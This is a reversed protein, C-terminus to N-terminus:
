RWDRDDCPDRPAGQVPTPGSRDFGLDSDAKLRPNTAANKGVHGARHGGDGYIGGQKIEGRRPHPKSLDTSWPSRVEKVM